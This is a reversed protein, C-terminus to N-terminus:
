LAETTKERVSPPHGWSRARLVSSTEYCAMVCLCHLIETYSWDNEWVSGTTYVRYCYLLAETFEELITRLVLCINWQQNWLNGHCCHMNSPALLYDSTGLLTSIKFAWLLKVYWIEKFLGEFLLRVVLLESRFLRRRWIAASVHCNRIVTMM